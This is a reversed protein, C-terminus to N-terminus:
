VEELTMSVDWFDYTSGGRKSVSNEFSTFMVEIVENYQGMREYRSSGFRDYRDYALFMYFSGPHDEYWKVMDVGGAGSDVTHVTLGSLNLFGTEEDFTPEGSFARSPLDQWSLSVTQKDAVHYSRM